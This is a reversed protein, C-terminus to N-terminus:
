HRTENIYLFPRRRVHRAHVIIGLQGQWAEGGLRV